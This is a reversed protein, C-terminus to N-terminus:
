RGTEDQIVEGINGEDETPEYTSDISLPMTISRESTVETKFHAFSELDKAMLRDLLQEIRLRLGQNEERLRQNEKSLLDMVRQHGYTQSLFENVSRLLRKTERGNFM